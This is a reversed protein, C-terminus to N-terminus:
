LHVTVDTKDTLGLSSRFRLENDTDTRVRLTAGAPESVDINATADARREGARNLAAEKERETALMKKAADAEAEIRAKEFRADAEVQDKQAEATREITRQDAVVDRRDTRDYSLDRRNHDSCGVLAAGAILLIFAKM